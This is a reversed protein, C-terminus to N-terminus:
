NLKRKFITTEYTSFWKSTTWLSHKILYANKGLLNLIPLSCYRYQLCKATTLPLLHKVFFSEWPFYQPRLFVKWSIHSCRQEHRYNTNEHREDFQPYRRCDSVVLINWNTFFYFYFSFQLFPKWRRLFKYALKGNNPKFRNIISWMDLKLSTQFSVTVQSHKM